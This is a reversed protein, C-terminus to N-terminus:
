RGHLGGTTMMHAVVVKTFGCSQILYGVFKVRLRFAFEELMYYLNSEM